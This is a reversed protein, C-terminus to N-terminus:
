TAFSQIPKQAVVVLNERRTFGSAAIVPGLIRLAWRSLSTGGRQWITTWDFAEMTVSYIVNFKRQRLLTHVSKVNPYTFHMNVNHFYFLENLLYKSGTLKKLLLGMRFMWGDATPVAVVLTGGSALLQDVQAMAGVPDPIHELVHWMTIIDFTRNAKNSYDELSTQVIRPALQPDCLADGPELGYSDFGLDTGVQLMWGYSAGIDLLSANPKVRLQKLVERYQRSRFDKFYGVYRERDVSAYFM